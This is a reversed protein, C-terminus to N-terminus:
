SVVVACGTVLNTGTLLGPATNQLDMWPAGQYFVRLTEDYQAFTYVACWGFEGQEPVSCVVCTGDEEFVISLLGMDEGECIVSMTYETNQEFDEFVSPIGQVDVVPRVCEPELDEVYTEPTCSSLLAAVVFATLIYIYFGTRESATLHQFFRSLLGAFSRAANAASQAYARIYDSYNM